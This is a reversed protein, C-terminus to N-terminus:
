LQSKGPPAPIPEMGPQPDSGMHWMALLGGIFEIGWVGRQNDRDRCGLIKTGLTIKIMNEITEMRFPMRVTLFFHENLM